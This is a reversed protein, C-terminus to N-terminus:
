RVILKKVHLNMGSEAVVYYLGKSFKELGIYQIFNRGASIGDERYLVRANSDYVQVRYTREMDFYEIAVKETAPNPYLDFRFSQAGGLPLEDQLGDSFTLILAVLSDCGSLNTLKLAYVGQQKFVSSGIVVSDGHAISTIITTDSAPNTKLQLVVVSDCGNSGTTTFRYEGDTTYFSGNFYYGDGECIEESLQTTSKQKVKLDLTVVSDCGFQNTFTNTYLGRVKYVKNGVVMSDGECIEVSLNKYSKKHVTLDLTLISDCGFRNAYVQVYQGPQTYGIGEFNYTEGECIEASLHFNQSPMVQLYLTAVSDCGKYNVLYQTYIGSAFLKQNGFVITDGQCIVENLVSYSAPKVTVATRVISDCGWQNVFINTYNGQQRYVLNGIRVSDGECISYSLNTENKPLVTLHLTILSDCGAVNQTTYNFTGSVAFYTDGLRFKEGACISATIITDTPQLVKLDLLVLSDCGFRNTLNIFYVGPKNFSNAGVTYSEGECISGVLTTNNRPNVKLDLIITSDCGFRNVLHQTYVGTTKYSWNGIRVSDGQCITDKMVMYHTPNVSLNLHIISDCGSETELVLTYNGPNKFVQSGVRVSDGLCITENRNVEYAHHVTLDLTITYECGSEASVTNQYIGQLRYTKGAVVVSDGECIERYITTDSAPVVKLNLTVVSDCGNITHLSQTYIGTSQRSIGGFVISHGQCIATDILIQYAPNVTLNLTVVSDCGTYSDLTAQYTGASKFVFGGVVVSDGTCINRTISTEKRNNVSLNVTVTSDCGSRSKLVHTYIGPTSYVYSGISISEGQCITTYILTDYVPNVTLHMFITSDCGYKDKFVTPYIGTTTYTSDGVKVSGGECIYRYLHKIQSQRISLNLTVLSDCGYQNTLAFHYTGAVTFISDGVPYSDGECITQDLTTENGPHVTLYFTVVSDCGNYGQYTFSYEGTTYYKIGNFVATDGECISEYFNTRNSRCYDIVTGTFCFVNDNENEETVQSLYDVIYGAYYHGSPLQPLAAGIDALINEPSVQAATLIGVPDIGLLYDGSTINQDASLYYGVNNAASASGGNNTVELSISINNGNLSLTNSAPTFTLNPKTAQTAKPTDFVYVNDSENSESVANATDILFGIYYTGPPLSPITTIDKSNSVDTTSNAALSAVNDTGLLFDGTSIEQDLSLYYGVTFAGAASNGTNKVQLSINVTSSVVSASNESPVYTLNPGPTVPAALTFGAITGNMGIDTINIGTATGSYIRANPYSYDDFVTNNTSGPYIDGDDGRNRNYDMDDDGDAEELDVLKRTETDNDSRSNDIHFIALGSGPLYANFGTQYKNELLFYEDPDQTKIKYVQTSTASPQLSYGGYSSPSIPWNIVTPSIWGLQERCWASMMAPTRENNLWSGSSMLCWRGIGESSDDTDYLDPLGLAHGFEHCFVGIGVMSATYTRTEPQIIYDNVWVGDYNVALGGLSWSHSWIYQTQSGEEAGPGSHVVMVNDVVGDDDNDYLSFNVGAAEAANVAERVLERAVQDGEDDGYYEYNHLATYWGFVDVSVDLTNNSNVLYYDRFSGTGGYNVQNMLNTFNTTTYNQALDPYKILLLLTRNQGNDPFDTATAASKLNLEESIFRPKINKELGAVFANEPFRRDNKNKAAIGTPILDGESSLGAYEYIGRGSRIVTYGDDTVTYHTKEDGKGYILLNTGDPQVVTVPYPSAPVFSKQSFAAWANAVFLLLFLKRM